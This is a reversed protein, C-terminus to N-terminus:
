DKDEELTKIAKDILKDIEKKSKKIKIRTRINDVTDMTINILGIFMVTIALIWFTKM